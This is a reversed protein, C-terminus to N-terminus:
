LNDQFSKIYADMADNRWDPKLEDLMTIILDRTPAVDASLNTRMWAERDPDFFTVKFENEGKFFIYDRNEVIKVFEGNKVLLDRGREDQWTEYNNGVSEWKAVKRM